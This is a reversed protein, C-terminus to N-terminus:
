SAFLILNFSNGDHKIARFQQQGIQWTHEGERGHGSIKIRIGSERDGQDLVAYEPTPRCRVVMWRHVRCPVPSKSGTKGFVMDNGVDCRQWFSDM